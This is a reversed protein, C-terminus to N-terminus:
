WACLVRPNAWEASDSVSGGHDDWSARLTIRSAGSIDIDVNSSTAFTQAPLEKMAADSAVAFEMRTIPSMVSGVRIIASFARCQGEVNWEATSPGGASLGMIYSGSGSWRFGTCVDTCSSGRVTAVPQRTSLPYWGYVTFVGASAEAPATTPTKPANVRVLQGRGARAVRATLSFAAADGAATAAAKAETHWYTGTGLDLNITKGVMALSATGTVTLYDGASLSALDVSAGSANSATLTSVRLDPSLGAVTVRVSKSPKSNNALARFGFTGVRTASWGFEFAGSRDARVRGIETWRNGSRIQLVVKSHKMRHWKVSGRLSVAQGVSTSPASAQLRVVPRAAEADPPSAILYGVAVLVAVLCRAVPSM